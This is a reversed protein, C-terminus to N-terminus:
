CPAHADGKRPNGHVGLLLNAAVCILLAPLVALVVHGPEVGAKLLAGGALPGGIAGLRGVAVTVGLGTSLLEPPYLYAALAPLVMIVGSIAGGLVAIAALMPLRGAGGLAMFAISAAALGLALLLSYDPRWRDMLFAIGLGGALGGAQFTAIARSADGISWGEATLLSPLWSVLLYLTFAAAAYFIWYLPTKRRGEGHFLRAYTNGGQGGGARIGGTFSPSEPLKWLLALWILGGVAASALYAGQWGHLALIPPVVLGALIGGVAIGVAIFTMAASRSKEPATEAVLASVNPLAIGLSLGTLFRSVGMMWLNPSFASLLVSLTLLGIGTLITPRRGFRDGLPGLGAAGIGLGFLPASLVWGFDAAPIAWERALVPVLLAMVQLDYGDILMVGLALPLVTFLGPPAPARM